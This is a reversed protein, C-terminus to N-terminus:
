VCVIRHHRVEKLADVVKTLADSFDGYQVQLKAKDGSKTDIEHIAASQTADASAVLLTFNNPGNKVV